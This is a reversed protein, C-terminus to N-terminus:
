QSIGMGFTGVREDKGDKGEKISRAINRITKRTVAKDGYCDKTLSAIEDVTSGGDRGGNILTVIFDHQKSMELLQFPYKGTSKSFDIKRM